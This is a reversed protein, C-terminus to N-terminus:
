PQPPKYWRDFDRQLRAAAPEPALTGKLVDANIKDIDFTTRDM